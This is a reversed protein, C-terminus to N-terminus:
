LHQGFRRKRAAWAGAKTGADPDNLGLSTLIGTLSLLLVCLYVGRFSGEAEGLYGALVNGIMSALGLVMNMFGFLATGARRTKSIYAPILGYIPFFGFAILGGVLPMMWRYPAWIMIFCAAADFLFALAIARRIGFRDGIMGMIAGSVMGALGVASWAGGAIEAGFGLEEQIYPTMFTTFPFGILGGLAAIAALIAFGQGRHTEGVLAVTEGTRQQHHLLERQRLQAGSFLFAGLAALLLAILGTVIWVFRWGTAPLLFALLFGNVFVGYNTGSSILGLIAARRRESVFESVVDVMPTWIAASCAGLVFLLPYLSWTETAGSMATLFAGSTWAAIMVTRSAGVKRSLAGSLCAAAVFGAQIAGALGGAMVHSFGLEVQMELLLAPFLYVGFGYATGIMGTLLLVLSTRQLANIKRLASGAEDDRDPSSHHREM